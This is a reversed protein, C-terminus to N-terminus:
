LPRRARAHRQRIARQDEDYRKLMAISAHIYQNIYLKGLRPMASMELNIGAGPPRAGPARMRVHNRAREKLIARARKFTDDFVPTNPRKAARVMDHASDRRAGRETRPRRRNAAARRPPADGDLVGGRSRLSGRSAPRERSGSRSGPRLADSGSSTPRSGDRSPLRLIQARHGEMTSPRSHTETAAFSIKPNVMTKRVADNYARAAADEDAAAVM